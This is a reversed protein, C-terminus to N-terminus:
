SRALTFSIWDISLLRRHQHRRPQRNRPGQFQAEPANAKRYVPLPWLVDPCPEGFM